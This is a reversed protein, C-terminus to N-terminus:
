QKSLNVISLKSIGFIQFQVCKELLIQFVIFLDIIVPEFMQETREAYRVAADNLKRFETIQTDNNLAENKKGTQYSCVGSAM